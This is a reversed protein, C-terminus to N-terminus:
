RKNELFPIFNLQGLHLFSNANDGFSAPRWNRTRHVEQPVTKLIRMVPGAGSGTDATESGWGLGAGSTLCGAGFGTSCGAGSIESGTASLFGAASRCCTVSVAEDGSGSNVGRVFVAAVRTGREADEDGFYKATIPPFRSPGM